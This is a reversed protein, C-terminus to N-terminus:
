VDGTMSETVIEAFSYDKNSQMSAPQQQLIDEASMEGSVACLAIGFYMTSIM